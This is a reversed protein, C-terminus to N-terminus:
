TGKFKKSKKTTPNSSKSAADFVAEARERIAAVVEPLPMDPSDIIGEEYLLARAEELREKIVGRFDEGKATGFALYGFVGALMGAMFGTGFSQTDNSKRAM